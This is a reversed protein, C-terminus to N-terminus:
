WINLNDTFTTFMERQSTTSDFNLAASFPNLLKTGSILKDRQVASLIKSLFHAQCQYVTLWLEGAVWKDSKMLQNFFSICTFHELANLHPKTNSGTFWRLLM